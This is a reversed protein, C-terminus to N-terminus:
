LKKIVPTQGIPGYWPITQTYYPLRSGTAVSFVMMETNGPRLVGFYPLLLHGNESYGSMFIAPGMQKYLVRLEGPTPIQPTPQAMVIAGNRHYYTTNNDFGITSLDPYAVMGAVPGPGTMVPGSWRTGEVSFGTATYLELEFLVPKNPDTTTAKLTKRDIINLTVEGYHEFQTKVAVTVGDALEEINKIDGGLSDRSIFSGNQLLFFPAYIVFSNASKFRLYAPPAFQYGSRDLVGVWQSSQLFDQFEENSSGSGANKKCSSLAIIICTSLTLLTKM